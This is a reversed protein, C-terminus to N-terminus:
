FCVKAKRIPIRSSVAHLTFASNSTGREDLNLLSIDKWTTKRVDGVPTGISLVDAPAYTSSKISHRMIIYVSKFRPVEVCQGRTPSFVFVGNQVGTPAVVLNRKEPQISNRASVYTGIAGGLSVAVLIIRFGVRQFLLEPDGDKWEIFFWRILGSFFKDVNLWFLSTHTGVRYQSLKQDQFNNINVRSERSPSYEYKPKHLDWLLHIGFNHLFPLLSPILCLGETWVKGTWQHFFLLKSETGVEINRIFHFLIGVSFLVTLETEFPIDEVFNYYPIVYFSMIFLSILAGQVKNIKM